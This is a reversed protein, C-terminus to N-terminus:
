LAEIYLVLDDYEEDVKRKSIVADNGTERMGHNTKWNFVVVRVWDILSNDMEIRSKREFHQVWYNYIKNDTVDRRELVIQLNRNLGGVAFAM